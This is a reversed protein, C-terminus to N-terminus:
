LINRLDVEIGAAQLERALEIQWGEGTVPIYVVGSFDTPLEVSAENLTAVHERGLMGIFMGLEFVVNQRARPHLSHEDTGGVDDPTLIVVAFSATQAQSILKGLVDSGRSPKDALVIIERGTTKDLFRRVLERRALDHGHVLFIPGDPTPHVHNAAESSQPFYPLRELLSSLVRTKERIDTRVETLRNRPITTSVLKLDLLSIATREFEDAPSSALVGKTEFCSNLVTVTKSTWALYRERFLTMDVDSETKM